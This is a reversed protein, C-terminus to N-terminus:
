KQMDNENMQNEKWNFFAAGILFIMKDKPNANILKVLKEVFQAPSLKGYLNRYLQIIQLTRKARHAAVRNCQQGVVTRMTVLQNEMMKAAASKWSNSKIASLLNMRFVM